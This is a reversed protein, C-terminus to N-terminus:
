FVQCFMRLLPARGLARGPTQARTRIALLKQQHKLQHESHHMSPKSKAQRKTNSQTLIIYLICRSQISRIANRKISEKFFLVIKPQLWVSMEHDSHITVCFSILLDQAFKGHKLHFHFHSPLPVSTPHFHPPLSHPLDGNGDWETGNGDMGRGSGDRKRGVETGSGGWKRRM